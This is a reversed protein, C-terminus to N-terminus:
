QAPLNNGVLIYFHGEALRDIKVGHIDIGNARFANNVQMAGPPPSIADEPSVAIMLGPMPNNYVAQNVGDTKPWGHAAFIKRIQEALRCSEGDGMVCTIGDFDPSPNGLASGIEAEQLVTFSRPVSGIVTATGNNNGGIAIGGPANVEPPKESVPPPTTNQKPREEVLPHVFSKKSPKTATAPAAPPQETKFTGGSPPQPQEFVTRKAMDEWYSSDSQWRTATEHWHKAEDAANDFLSKYSFHFGTWCILCVVICVVLFSFPARRIM